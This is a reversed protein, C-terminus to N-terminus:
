GAFSCRPRGVAALRRRASRLKLLRSPFLLLSFCDSCVWRKKSFGQGGQGTEQSRGPSRMPGDCSSVNSDAGQRMCFLLTDVWRSCYAIRPCLNEEPLQPAAAGQPAEADEAEMLIEDQGEASEDENKAVDAAALQPRASRAVLRRGDRVNFSANLEKRTLAAFLIRSHVVSRADACGEHVFRRLSDAFRDTHLRDDLIFEEVFAGEGVYVAVFVLDLWACLLREETESGEQVPGVANSLVTYLHAHQKARTRSPAHLAYQRQMSADYFGGVPKMGWSPIDDSALRSEPLGSNCASCGLCFRLFSLWLAHQTEDVGLGRAADLANQEGEETFGKAYCRYIPTSFTLGNKNTKRVKPLPGESVAPPDEVNIEPLSNPSNAVVPPEVVGPLQAHDHCWRVGIPKTRDQPRCRKRCRLGFESVRSCLAM